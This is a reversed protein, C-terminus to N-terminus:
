IYLLLMLAFMEKKILALSHIGNKGEPSLVLADLSHGLSLPFFYGVSFVLVPCEIPLEAM